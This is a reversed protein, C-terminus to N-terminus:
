PFYVTANNGGTCVHPSGSTCTMTYTQGTAASYAEVTSSGGGAEYARRVERAFVCSTNPGASVGGGCARQGGGSSPPPSSSPPPPNADDDGPPTSPRGRDREKAERELQKLREEQRADNRADRLEEESAGDDGCGAVLIALAAVLSTM